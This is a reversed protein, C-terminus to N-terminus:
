LGNHPDKPRRRHRVLVDVLHSRPHLSHHLNLSNHHVLQLHQFSHGGQIEQLEPVVEGRGTTELAGLPTLDFNEHPDGQFISGVDGVAEHLRDKGLLVPAHQFLERLSQREELMHLHPQLPQLEGLVLVEIEPLGVLGSDLVHQLLVLSSDSGGKLAEPVLRHVGFQLLQVASAGGKLAEQIGVHVLFKHVPSDSSKGLLSHQIGQEDHQIPILRQEMHRMHEQLQNHICLLSEGSPAM